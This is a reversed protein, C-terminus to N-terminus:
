LYHILYHDSMAIIIYEFGIYGDIGLILVKMKSEYLFGIINKAKENEKYSKDSGM